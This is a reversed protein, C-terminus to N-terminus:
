VGMSETTAIRYGNTRQFKKVSLPKVKDAARQRQRKTKKEGVTLANQVKYSPYVWLQNPIWSHNCQGLRAIDDVIENVKTENHGLIRLLEVTREKTLSTWTNHYELNWNLKTPMIQPTTLVAMSDFNIHM